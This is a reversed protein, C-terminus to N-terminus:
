EMAITQRAMMGAYMVDLEAKYLTDKMQIAKSM